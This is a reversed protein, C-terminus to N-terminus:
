VHPMWRKLPRDEEGPHRHHWYFYNKQPRGDRWDCRRGLSYRLYDKDRKRKKEDEKILAIHMTAQDSCHQGSFGKWWDSEAVDDTLLDHDESYRQWESIFRRGRANNKVAFVATWIATENKM